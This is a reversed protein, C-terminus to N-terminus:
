IDSNMYSNMCVLFEYSKKMNSNTHKMFEYIFEPTGLNWIVRLKPLYLMKIAIQATSAWWQEMKGPCYDWFKFTESDM